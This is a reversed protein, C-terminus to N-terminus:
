GERGARVTALPGSGFRPRAELESGAWEEWMESGWLPYPVTDGEPPEEALRGACYLWFSAYGGFREALRALEGGYMGALHAAARSPMTGASRAHVKRTVGRPRFSSDVGLFAYLSSLLDEPFFHVDELFGVFIQEEPYYSGWNELTRLYDTRLRSGERDFISHLTGDSVTSVNRGKKDFGMVAQSWAREVPNRMMFILKADPALDHVRSIRGPDLIAYEPTIEGVLSGRGPEFLSAYWGDDPRGFYYRLTWSLSEKSSGKVHRELRTGLQRRWRRDVVRDSTLRKYIRLVPNPSDEIKEDFYHLEKITPMWIGPHLQLNRSVWTTGAKQAGIGIFDPYLPAGPPNTM